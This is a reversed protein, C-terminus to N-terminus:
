VVRPWLHKSPLTRDAHRSCSCGGSSSGTLQINMEGGYVMELTMESFKAACGVSRLVRLGRRTIVKPTAAGRHVFSSTPRERDGPEM